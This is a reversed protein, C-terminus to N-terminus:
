ISVRLVASNDEADDGVDVEGGEVREGACAAQDVM